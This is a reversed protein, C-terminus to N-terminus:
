FKLDVGISVIRNPTYSYSTSGSFTAQPDMGKLHTLLCLNDASLFVRASSIKMKASFPAPLTYGFRLNKVSLYSADILFRDSIIATSTATARPVDTVQGPATWARLANAHYGQGVFSPEMLNYYRTDHIKGGLSWGLLFNMDFGRWRLTSSLSGYIKPIRSGLLYKSSSAETTSNTIYESGPIMAGSADKEYAMYLQEGTAPDVGASRAMYFTNMEEGERIIYVGNVIDEGEDTLKLVRNRLTSATLSVNWWLDKDSFIDYGLTLDMGSNALSGVNDYFGSFGLSIPMPKLLLMDTTLRRYLEVTGSLRGLLRFEAGVNLNGNKEWTVDLNEVSEIMAGGFAANAYSMDYLSQWAYYTNVDDNGQVGYSAKLTVNDIWPVDKLFPEQSIRWSAGLSWFLGRRNTRLFRSSADTRASASFYYKDAFDYNLRSLWSDIAYNDAASHSGAVTSGMALEDYGDFSFGTKEGMLYRLNYHYFEHGAMADFHHGGFDQKWTLLQNWTWSTMRTNEKRLRGTGAANGNHRNFNVTTYTNVDDAGFNTTLAFAKWKLAAHGRVGATGALSYYGDDFLTAVCNKNNQAGAPRSVGYDFARRGNEVVVSGDASRKYVPYIPAMMMASYWVNTINSGSAGLYDSRTDAYSLNLGFDFWEKPTFDANVRATYRRFHTTKLTGDEDLCSLSALYKARQSAGSVSLQYEQRLPFREMAEDLWDESWRLSAGPVIKGDATFLDEAAKDYPNYMGSTGLISSALMSPTKGAAVAPMQGETHVLDNYFARYMYEMYDKTGLTEYRPVAPSVHGLRASLQVSVSDDGAKGRRTTVLLVGNAGRAGYLAGASADKLVSVSEIDNSNLTSLDGDYPVGDVVVLPSCSANVSGFGRIRIDSGSGPQGSGSTAMVGAVQGDLMKTVNDAARDSIKDPGVVEASGTFSEKKTTGYAVVIVDDLVRKEPELSVNITGEGGVIRKQPSMGLCSYELTGGVPVSIRYRGELDTIASNRRDATFVAAGPLPSGDSADRVTGSVAVVGAPATGTQAFISGVFSCCIALFICVFRRM